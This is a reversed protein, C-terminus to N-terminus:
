PIRVCSCGTLDFICAEDPDSCGGNCEPADADGCAVTTCECSATGVVARCRGGGGCTGRCEGDTFRCAGPQGALTTTTTQGPVTTSTSGTPPATLDAPACVFRSARFKVVRAGFQDVVNQTSSPRACKARYCLFAGAVSTSPGGGPPAPTVQTKAAPVCAIKAPTRVLCSQPGADTAVTVQFKSRPASDKVAFCALHDQVQAAAACPLALALAALTSFHTAKM